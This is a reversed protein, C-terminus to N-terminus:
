KQHPVDPSQSEHGRLMKLAVARCSILTRKKGDEFVQQLSMELVAILYLKLTSTSLTLIEM